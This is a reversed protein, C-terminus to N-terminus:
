FYVLKLKEVKNKFHFNLQDFHLTGKDLSNGITTMQLFQILCM